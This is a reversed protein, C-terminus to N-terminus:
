QYCSLVCTMVHTLTFLFTFIFYFVQRKRGLRRLQDENASELIIFPRTSQTILLTPRVFDRQGRISYSM